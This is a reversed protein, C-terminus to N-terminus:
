DWEIGMNWKGRRKAIVLKGGPMKIAGGGNRKECGTASGAIALLKTVVLFIQIGRIVKASELNRFMSFKTSMHTITNTNGATRQIAYTHIVHMSRTGMQPRITPASARLALSRLQSNMTEHKNPPTPSTTTTTQFLITILAPSPSFQHIYINLLAPQSERMTSNSGKVRPEISSDRSHTLSASTFTGWVGTRLVDRPWYVLSLTSRGWLSRNNTLLCKMPVRSGNITRTRTKSM